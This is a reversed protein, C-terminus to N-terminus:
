VAHGHLARKSLFSVARSLQKSFDLSSLFNTGCVKKKKKAPKV